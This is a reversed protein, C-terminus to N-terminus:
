ENSATAAAEDIIDTVPVNLAKAIKGVTAPKCRYGSSVRRFTQYQIGTSKCLEYPNICCNAMAIMLKQFNVKMKEGDKKKTNKM